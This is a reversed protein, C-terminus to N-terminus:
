LAICYMRNERMDYLEKRIELTAKKLRIIQGVPENLASLLLVLAVASTIAEVLKM